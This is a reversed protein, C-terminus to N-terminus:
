FRNEKTSDIFKGIIPDTIADTFRVVMLILGITALTLGGKGEYILPTSLYLPLTTFALLFGRLGYRIIINKNIPLSNNEM